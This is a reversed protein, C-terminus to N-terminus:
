KNIDYLKGDGNPNYGAKVEDGDSFGDGDTDKKKPNTKYVVLEERDFLGDGDTDINNINLGLEIEKLDSLGDGDTDKEVVNEDRNEAEDSSAPPIQEQNEIDLEENSNPIEGEEGGPSEEGEQIGPVEDNFVIDKLYKDYAFYGGGSVAGIFLFVILIKIIPLKKDTKSEEQETKGDVPAFVAPKEKGQNYFSEEPKAGDIVPGDSDSFIDEILEEPKEETNSPEVASSDAVKKNTIEGEESEGKENKNNKDFEDFM